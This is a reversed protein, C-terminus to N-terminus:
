SFIERKRRVLIVLGAGLLGSAFLLWTGPEPAPRLTIKLVMDDYDKDSLPSRTNLEEWALLYTNEHLPDKYFLSQVSNYRNWGSFSYLNEPHKGNKSYIYFGLRTPDTIDGTTAVSGVDAGPSFIEDYRPYMGTPNTTRNLTVLGFGLQDDLMGSKGLLEVEIYGQCDLNLDTQYNMVDIYDYGLNNFMMKLSNPGSSYSFISATAPLVTFVLFSVILSATLKKM